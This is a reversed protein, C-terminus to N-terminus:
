LIQLLRKLTILLITATCWVLCFILNYNKRCVDPHSPLLSVQYQNSPFVPLYAKFRSEMHSATGYAHYLISLVSKLKSLDETDKHCMVCCQMVDCLIACNQVCRLTIAWHRMTLKLLRSIM